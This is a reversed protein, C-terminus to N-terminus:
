ASPEGNGGEKGNSGNSSNSGGSGNSDSKEGNGEGSSEGNSEIGYKGALYDDDVVTTRRGEEVQRVIQALGVPQRGGVAVNNGIGVNIQTGCNIGSLHEFMRMLARSAGNRSRADYCFDIIPKNESDFLLDGHKDRAQQRRGVIEMLFTPLKTMVDPPLEWGESVAKAIMQLHQRRHHEDIGIPDPPAPGEEPVVGQGESGPLSDSPQKAEDDPSPV